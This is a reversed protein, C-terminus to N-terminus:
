QNIEKFKEKLDEIQKLLGSDKLDTAMKLREENSGANDKADNLMSEVQKFLSEVGKTINVVEGKLKNGQLNQSFM